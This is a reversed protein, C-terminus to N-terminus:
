VDRPLKPAKHDHGIAMAQDHDSRGAAGAGAPQKFPSPQYLAAHSPCLAVMVGALIKNCLKMNKM